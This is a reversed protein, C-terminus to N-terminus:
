FFSVYGVTDSFSYVISFIYTHAEDIIDGV